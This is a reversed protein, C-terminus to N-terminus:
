KRGSVAHITACNQSAKPATQKLLVNALM